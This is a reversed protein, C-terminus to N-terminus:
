AILAVAAALPPFLRRIMLDTGKRQGISAFRGDAHICIRAAAKTNPWVVRSKQGALTIQSGRETHVQARGPTRARGTGCTWPNGRHWAQGVRPVILAHDAGQCCMACMSNTTHLRCNVGVSWM